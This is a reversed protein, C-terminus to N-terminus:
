SGHKPSSENGGLFRERVFKILASEHFSFGLIGHQGDAKIETPRIGTLGSKVRETM